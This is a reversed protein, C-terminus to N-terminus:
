KNEFFFSVIVVLIRGLCNSTKHAGFAICNQKNVHPVSKAEGRRFDASLKRVCEAVNGHIEIYHRLLEWLQGITYVVMNAAPYFLKDKLDSM